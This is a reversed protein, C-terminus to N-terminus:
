ETIAGTEALDRFFEPYSKAVAECGDITVPEDMAAALVSMAMVIRHDNHGKVMGGHLKRGGSVYVTDASSRMEGGLVALEETMAAIRDSEKIRLRGAGRFVSEGEAMAALAFLVPGLDPCDSLDAQVAKLFGPIIRYGDETERIEAGFQEAIKLMVADGQRSEHNMNAIELPVRRMMALAIFFAAQSADGEIRTDASHYSQGGRIRCCMGDETISIGAQQLVSLTLQVYSRSEYPPEIRITSDEPLLPLAFLLGSIFQSSVAGSLSYEGGSLPGRVCLIGDRKEFLLGRQRFLDEYVTQPRSMLRGRGSFGVEKDQLCFVPIMFRLTSGSEGCDIIRGDYSIRGGTGHIILDQGEREARAGLAELCRLTARIDENNGPAAIRSTGAALAATILARHTLSKSAPIRIVTDRPTGKRITIKM